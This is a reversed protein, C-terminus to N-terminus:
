RITLEAEFHTEDEADLWGCLISQTHHDLYSAKIITQMLPEDKCPLIYFSTEGQYGNRIAIEGTVINPLTYVFASPSPFYNDPDEISAQYNRDAQISSSHNFLIIARHDSFQLNDLTREAEGSPKDLFRGEAKLLLESAVFGLRSLLDMKYYKPYDAIYHKYLDTLLDAGEGEHNLPQGDVEVRQPTIHVRHQIMHGGDGTEKEGERRVGERRIGSEKGVLIAANGGGFGSIMKMFRRKDTPMNDNTLLIKGSVGREEFGKIGLITHDDLAAMTIITELIGAAGLTHGFYGKLANVPITSLGAREIAVSEMQDNFMTATGHANIMALGETLEQASGQAQRLVAELALRAGEGNKSPSSIHFADNRVAGGEIAWHSMPVSGQTRLKRLVRPRDGHTLVITAAAEGLNLGLREIDFPKCVDESVAKLSQFGSVTFLNLVDAGCVIAYDYAGGELLRQALIIAAVGSICANCVVIPQTVVGLVEAIRKAAEAPGPERLEQRRGGAELLEINAKTTSLILVVRQQSPDIGAEMIASRASRVVLSEFRTLGEIALTQNQEESFLSACFPEPIDWQGEYRRLLGRGAKVAEYNQATTEGLPTLVNDAIKYIM